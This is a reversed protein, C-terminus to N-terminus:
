LDGVGLDHIFDEPAGPSVVVTRSAYRLVVARHPDTVYARYAGLLKNRYCGTFSFFGGNGWTRLSRRMAQPDFRASLLEARPLRTTWFLRHVLIADGTITYGRITFLACGIILALPLLVAWFPADEAQMVVTLPIGLCLLTALISMLILSTSWPAQHRKVNAPQYAHM